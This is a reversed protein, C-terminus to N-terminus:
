IICDVIGNCIRHVHICHIYVYERIGGSGGTRGDAGGARGARDGAGGARGARGAARGGQGGAIHIYIYVYM